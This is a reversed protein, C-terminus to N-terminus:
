SHGMLVVKASGAGGGRGANNELEVVKTALWEVFNESAAGQTSTLLLQTAFLQEPSKGIRWTDRLSPICAVTSESFSADRGPHTRHRIDTSAASVWERPPFDEFTVENGKFSTTLSLM